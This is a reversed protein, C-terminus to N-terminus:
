DELTTKLVGRAILDLSTLQSSIVAPFVGVQQVKVHHLEQQDHQGGLQVRGTGGCVCPSVGERFHEHVVFNPCGVKDPDKQLM